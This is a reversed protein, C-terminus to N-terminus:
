GMFPRPYQREVVRAVSYNDFVSAQATRAEYRKLNALAVQEDRLTFAHHKESGVARDQFVRSAAIMIYTRATQPLEEWDLAKIVTAKLPGSFQDTNNKRDVLKTGRLVVELYEPNDGFELSVMLTNDPMRIRGDSDPNLQVGYDTNWHWGHAQVSLSTEDLTQLAIAVDAAPTDVSNVPSSGINALLVNLAQLKSTLTM